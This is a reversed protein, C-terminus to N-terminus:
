SLSFPLPRAIVIEEPNIEAQYVLIAVGQDHVQKLTDSYLPDIHTAPRFHNADLRQVLFFIAGKHGRRVLDALELLHKHGRATCADPFMAVGDKAYTCSKIEVFTLSPGYHLALDLRCNVSTRVERQIKTPKGLESILGDLIAEEVVANTRATNVGIKTGQKEVIELTYPYKRGPNCSKSLYARSGPTSCTLMSGTNPCHVTVDRGDDFRVDALFRQYRRLLVATQLPAPFRM